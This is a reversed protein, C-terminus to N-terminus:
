LGGELRLESLLESAKWKGQWLQVLEHQRLEELAWEVMQTTLRSTSALADVTTPDETLRELVRQRHPPVTDRAVKRLMCWSLEDSAGICRLGRWLQKMSKVLRAPGEGEPASLIPRKVLRENRTVAGRGKAVYRALAGIVEDGAESVSVSYLQVKEMCERVASALAVRQEDGDASHRAAMRAMQRAPPQKPRFILMREGMMSMLDHHSDIVNTSAGIFGAKGRWEITKGGGTGLPRVYHGDFVERLAQMTTRRKTPDMELMAGFDKCVLLGQEGIERLKGGTAGRERENEPTGSLLGAETVAPLVKVPYEEAHLAELPKLSETKGCSPPAVVLVWVPEGGLRNAAYCALPMYVTSADEIAMWGRYVEVLEDLTV